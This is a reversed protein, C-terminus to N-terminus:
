RSIVRGAEWTGPSANQYPIPSSLSVGTVIRYKIFYAHSNRNRLEQNFIPEQCFRIPSVDVSQGFLGLLRENFNRQGVAKHRSLVICARHIVGAVLKLGNALLLIIFFYELMDIEMKGISM